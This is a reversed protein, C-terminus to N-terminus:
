KHPTTDTANCTSCTSSSDCGSCGSCGSCSGTTRSRVISRIALAVAAALLISIVITAPM